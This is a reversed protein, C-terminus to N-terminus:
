LNPYDNMVANIEDMTEKLFYIAIFAIITALVISWLVTYSKIKKDIYKIDANFEKDENLIRNIDETNLLDTYRDKFNQYSKIYRDKQEFSETRSMLMYVFSIIIIVISFLSSYVVFNSSTNTNGLVKLAIISSFLTLVSLASKQFTSAFGEVITNARKNYDILQDSLKNRIEIYQKINQKEYVKYASLISSFMNGSFSLDNSSNLHLSIINRALGLKDILNGSEHIWNYIKKYEQVCSEIPTSNLDVLGDIGKYGNIRFTLEDGSLHTIDFVAIIILTFELKELIAKLLGPLNQNFQFDEPIILKDSLAIAHTSSQINKLRGLRITKQLFFGPENATEDNVFGISASYSSQHFGRSKFILNEYLNIKESFFAILDATTFNTLYTEFDSISYVNLQNEVVKKDVRIKIEIVTSAEIGRIGVELSTKFKEFDAGKFFSIDDDSEDINVYVTCADAVGFINLCDALLTEDPIKITELLCKTEFVEFDELSSSIQFTESFQKILNTSINM